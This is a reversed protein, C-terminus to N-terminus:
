GRTVTLAEAYQKAVRTMDFAEEARRRAARSFTPLDDLMQGLAATIGEVYSDGYAWPETPVVVGGGGVLEAAGGWSGCVVPLGCAMAEVVVNPCWDGLRPHILVDARRLLQPLADNDVPGTWEVRAAGSSNRSRYQHLLRQNIADLPGIIMLELDHRQYLRDFVPLVTGLVYEDRITGAVALRRRGERAPAPSFRQLDIGNFVVAYHDRRNYLYQDTMQKSFASQYIVFDSLLLDCQIRANVRMQDITLRRSQFGEPQVRNDFYAPVYIGDVRLVTRVGWRACLRHVWDGWAASFLLAGSSGRLRRHSVEVGNARLQRSLKRSFTAPGGIGPRLSFFVRPRKDPNGWPLLVSLRDMGRALRETSPAKATAPADINM